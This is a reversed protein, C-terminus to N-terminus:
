YVENEKGVSRFMGNVNAIKIVEGSILVCLLIFLNIYWLNEIRLFYLGPFCLIFPWLKLILYRFHEKRKFPILLTLILNGMAIYIVYKLEFYTGALLGLVPIRWLTKIKKAASDQIVILSVLALYLSFVLALFTKFSKEFQMFSLDFKLFMWQMVVFSLVAVAHTILFVQPTKFERIQALQRAFVFVICITLLTLTIIEQNMNM